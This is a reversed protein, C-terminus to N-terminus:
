REQGPYTRKVHDKIGRYTGMSVSMYAQCKMKVDMPGGGEMKEPQAGACAKRLQTVEAAEQDGEDKWCGM